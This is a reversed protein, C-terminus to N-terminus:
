ERSVVLSKDLIFKESLPKLKLLQQGAEYEAVQQLHGIGRLDSAKMELYYQKGTEVALTVQPEKTDNSSFTYRGPPVSVQIYRGNDMRAVERGDLLVPPEESSNGEGKRRFVYMIASESPAAIKMVSVTFKEARQYDELLQKALKRALEKAGGGTWENARSDAWVVTGSITHVMDLAATKGDGWFDAPRSSPLKEEGKESRIDIEEPLVVGGTSQITTRSVRRPFRLVCEARGEDAVVRLKGLKVIEASLFRDLFEPMPEIYITKCEYLSQGQLTLAPFLFLIVLRLKRM